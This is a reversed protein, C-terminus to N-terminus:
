HATAPATVQHPPMTTRQKNRRRIDRIVRFLIKPAFLSPPPKLLNMCELFAAHVVPDNHSARHVHAIYNNIFDTGPPKVGEVEPYAFDTGVALQWPIDVVKAASKFFFKWLGDLSNARQLLDNLADAQMSASTMGQGYVPNFSCIADGLVLYGEPFRTLKEYHRRLNAPFKHPVVDTLPEADKIINYIDPAPLTRAFELFGQPDTPCHDGLHGGMSIIWRDGEIPFCVGLRKEKPASPTILYLIPLQNPDRKYIRTAYGVNIKVEEEAPKEYGLAELWKQSMSGRGSCDVVLDAQLDTAPSNAANKPELQVGIIRAKDATSILSRVSTDTLVNVNKLAVVRKRTVFEILPRSMSVGIRGYKFPVRYGGDLYWRMMEGMDGSEAGNAVLEDRFGAFFKDLVEGGKALLGHLHRGQPVGKRTEPKDAIFDREIITVKEFYDSLVRATLLGAMSGGIVIAHQKKM